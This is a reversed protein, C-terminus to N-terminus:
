KKHELLLKQFEENSVILLDLLEMDRNETIIKKDINKASCLEFFLHQLDKPIKLESVLFSKNFLKHDKFLTVLDETKIYDIAEAKEKKFLKGILKGIAIFDMNGSAQPSYLHPRNKIDNAIQNNTKVSLVISDFVKENVKTIEVEDLTNTIKKLEIVLDENFHNEAIILTQTTHFYSSITLTDNVKAEIEFYGKDNTFTVSKQTTNLLKAGKITAEADYVFGKVSQAGSLFPIIIFLFFPFPKM